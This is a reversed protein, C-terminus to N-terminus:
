STDGRLSPCRPRMDAGIGPAQRGAGAEVQALLMVPTPVQKGDVMPPLDAADM